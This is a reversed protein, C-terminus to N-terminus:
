CIKSEPNVFSFHPSPSTLDGLSTLSTLLLLSSCFGAGQWTLPEAWAGSGVAVCPTPLSPRDVGQVRLSTSPVPALGCLVSPAALSVFFQGHLFALPSRQGVDWKVKRYYLAEWFEPQMAILQQAKWISPGGWLKRRLYFPIPGLVQMKLLDGHLVSAAPGFIVSWSGSPCCKVMVWGTAKRLHREGPEEGREGAVLKLLRDIFLLPPSLTTVAALERFIFSGSSIWLVASSVAM